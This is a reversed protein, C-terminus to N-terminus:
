RSAARAAVAATVNIKVGGGEVRRKARTAEKKVKQETILPCMDRGKLLATLGELTLRFNAVMANGNHDDILSFFRMIIKKSLATRKGEALADALAEFADKVDKIKLITDIATGVKFISSTNQLRNVVQSAQSSYESNFLGSEINM